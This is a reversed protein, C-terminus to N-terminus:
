YDKEYFHVICINRTKRECMNQMTKKLINRHHFLNNVNKMSRNISNFVHTRKTEIYLNMSTYIKNRLLFQNFIKNVHAIVNNKFVFTISAKEADFVVTIEKSNLQSVSILNVALESVFLVDTLKLTEADISMQINNRDIVTLRKESLIIMMENYSVLEQEKM